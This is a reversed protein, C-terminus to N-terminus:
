APPMKPLVQSFENGDTDVAHIYLEAAGNDTYSFRFEPNESISIGGELRFLLDDGQRVEVENIFHAPIFLHTIQDRQLGSNNPHLISLRAERRVGSQFPADDLTELSMEGMSALAAEANGVSPASCGGSAKVFRGDMFLGDSTEAIARINSYRDVRLRTEFDLPYMDPGLTIVAAVPAPNEDVVITLTDIHEDLDTQHIALPVMAANQARYPAQVDFLHAGDALAAEGTVDPRLATWIGGEQLPNPRDQATATGVVAVALLTALATRVM